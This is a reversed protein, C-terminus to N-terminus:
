WVLILAEESGSLALKVLPFFIFFLFVVVCFGMATGMQTVKLGLSTRPALAGDLM